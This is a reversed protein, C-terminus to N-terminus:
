RHGRQYMAYRLANRHHNQARRVSQPRPRRSCLVLLAPLPAASHPAANQQCCSAATCAQGATQQSTLVIMCCRCVLQLILSLTSPLSWSWYIVLFYVPRTLFLRLLWIVIYTISLLAYLTWWCFPGIVQEVYSLSTTFVYFETVEVGSVRRVQQRTKIFFFFTVSQFIIILVLICLLSPFQATKRSQPIERAM